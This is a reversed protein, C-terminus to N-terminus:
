RDYCQSKTIYGNYTWLFCNNGHNVRLLQMQTSRLIVGHDRPELLDSASTSVFHLAMREIPAVGTTQRFSLASSCTTISMSTVCMWTRGFRTMLGYSQLCSASM